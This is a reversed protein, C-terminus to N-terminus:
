GNLSDIVARSPAPRAAATRAAFETGRLVRLVNAWTLGTVEAESWGRELLEAILRPFGSVDGLGPGHPLGTDYAGTLAVTEAGAVARVRDLADAVEAPTGTCPVMCVGHGARLARLLDEDLPEPHHSVLAPARTVALVRRLTQAPCGSLDLLVGLRNAERVVEHGFPTLGGPGGTWRSGVPTLSRVGLTHLARLAALSDGLAPGPAPGLLVATRGRNRADAVDDARVAVVLGEPASRVTERVVDILDLVGALDGAGATGSDAGPPHLCWFQAGVGGRRLRPVDTELLSEGAELDHFHMSRLVPALGSRGDVVPHERLLERARALFGPVGPPADPGPEPSGTTPAPSGTTPAPPDPYALDADLAALVALGDGDGDGLGPAVRRDPAEAGGSPDVTTLSASSASPSQDTSTADQPEAM